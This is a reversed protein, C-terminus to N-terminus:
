ILIEFELDDNEDMGKKDLQLQIAENWLRKEDNNKINNPLEFTRIAKNIRNRNESLYNLIQQKHQKKLKERMLTLPIGIKCRKSYNYNQDIWMELFKIKNKIEPIKKEYYSRNIKSDCLPCMSRHELKMYDKLIVRLCGIKDIIEDYKKNLRNMRRKAKRVKEEESM